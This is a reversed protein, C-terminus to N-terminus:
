RARRAAAGRGALLRAAAYYKKPRRRADRSRAEDRELQRGLVALAQDFAHRITEGMHEVRISPRFPVRVTVACRIDLGGKPGNDDVFRVQAGLPAPRVRALVASMTRRVHAQLPHEDPIGRIDIM